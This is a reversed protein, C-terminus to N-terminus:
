PKEELRGLRRKLDKMDTTIKEGWELLAKSWAEVDFDGGDNNKDVLILRDM